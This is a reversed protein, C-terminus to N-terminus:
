QSGRAEKLETSSSFRNFTTSNMEKQESILRHKLSNESVQPATNNKFPLTIQSPLLPYPLPLELQETFLLFTPFGMFVHKKKKQGKKKTM